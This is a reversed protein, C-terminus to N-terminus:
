WSLLTESSDQFQCVTKIVGLTYCFHKPHLQVIDTSINSGRDNVCHWLRSFSVKQKLQIWLLTQQWALQGWFHEKWAGNHRHLALCWAGSDVCTYLCVTPISCFSSNADSHSQSWDTRKRNSLCQSWRGIIFQGNDWKDQLCCNGM